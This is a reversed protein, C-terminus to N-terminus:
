DLKLLHGLKDRKTKLYQINEKRPKVELSVREVVQIGFQELDQIKQPNNTLLRIKSLGLYRLIQASLGYHRHDALFGLQQNAEVTDYGQSQLAYAKIKNVLGIGRGEQRMYLLIGNEKAIISLAEDLQEGCDCLFSGLADGTLCESHIRVLVPKTPDLSGHMLAVHESGNYCDQFVKISFDSGAKLTIPASAVETVNCEHRLRYAILDNVAVLKINHEKAFGRLDTLRAMTGDDKMIECIVGAPQLGAMKALDVSGETHGPRELIGGKRAQLPFIHGPMSIDNITSKPDVVVSITHSRDFASVGTTIGSMAEISVTFMAQNPLKNHEPMLPIQLREIIDHHLALCIQGRAHKAMFNIAEPTVKEAAFILDGENERQEDDVLILMHGARLEELAEEISIFENM